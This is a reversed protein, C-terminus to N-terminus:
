KDKLYTLKIYDVTDIKFYYSAQENLDKIVHYDSTTNDILGFLEKMPKDKFWIQIRYPKEEPRPPLIIEESRYEKRKFM